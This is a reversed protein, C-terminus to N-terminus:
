PRCSYTKQPFAAERRVPIICEYQENRISYSADPRVTLEAIRTTFADEDEYQMTVTFASEDETEFVIGCSEDDSILAAVERFHAANKKLEEWKKLTEEKAQCGFKYDRVLESEFRYWLNDALQALEQPSTGYEM